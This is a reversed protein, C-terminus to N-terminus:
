TMERDKNRSCVHSLFVRASRSCPFMRSIMRVSGAFGDSAAPPTCTCTQTPTLSPPQSVTQQLSILQDTQLLLGRMKILRHLQCGHVGM